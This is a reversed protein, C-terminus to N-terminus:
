LGIDIQGEPTPKVGGRAFDGLKIPKGDVQIVQNLINEKVPGDTWNLVSNMDFEKTSSGRKTVFTVTVKNTSPNYKGAKVSTVKKVGAFDRPKDLQVPAEGSNLTYFGARLPIGEDTKTVEKKTPVDSAPVNRQSINVRVGNEDVYSESVTAGTVPPNPKRRKDTVVKEKLVSPLYKDQAYLLIPNTLINRSSMKVNAAAMEQDSIKGDSDKDVGFEKLYKYKTAEDEKSFDNMIGKLARGTSDSLVVQLIHKKAEEPTANVSKQTYTDFGDRGAVADETTSVSGSWREGSFFDEMNIGSYELSNPKYQGTSLFADTDATFKAVDFDGPSKKIMAQDQEWLAQSSKWENQLNAIGSRDKEMEMLDDSTLKNGREKAIKTWKDQFFKVAEYQQKRSFDSVLASTDVNINKRLEDQYKTQLDEQKTIKDRLRQEASALETMKPVEFNLEKGTFLIQNDLAM